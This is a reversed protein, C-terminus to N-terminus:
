HNIRVHFVYKSIPDNFYKWTDPVECAERM